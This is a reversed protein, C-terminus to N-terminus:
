NGGGASLHGIMRQGLNQAAQQEAQLQQLAELQAPALIGQAQGIAADSVAAGSSSIGGGPLAIIPVAIFGFHHPFFPGDGSVSLASPAALLTLALAVWVDRRDRWGTGVLAAGDDRPVIVATVVYAVLIFPLLIFSVLVTALRMALPSIGANRALGACLGLLIRDDSSRRLSAGLPQPDDPHAHATDM